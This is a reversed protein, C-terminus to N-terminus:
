RKSLEKKIVRIRQRAKFEEDPSKNDSMSLFKEYNELAPQYLHNRDLVVARFFFHGPKEAGLSKVKDLAALAQQDQNLLILMGALDSWAEGSDPKAQTVRYFEQAAAPYKKLERLARAYSMRLDLNKPEAQLAQQFLPAAKDPQKNEIYATALAIRNTTTPSSKVAEELEPIAVSTQGSELLLEGVREKAAPNEPFQKYIEIAEATKKGREYLAALELLADRFAPDVEAAKRFHPAAEELRNQKIMSRALGLEAAASKPDAEVAAKYYPEAKDPQSAESLAEAAFFVPRYVTPKKKAAAELYPVADAARKQRLLIIGLNLEAEYLEPKLELVKKYELVADDDRNVLSYSLALHFHAGYDKADAAVAKTFSDVAAPYRQEELAKLGDAQPDPKQLLFFAVVVPALPWM